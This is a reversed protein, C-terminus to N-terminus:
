RVARLDQARTQGTLLTVEVALRMLQDLTDRQYLDAEEYDQLAVLRYAGAPLPGLTYHGLHDTRTASIYRSLPRWLTRDTSFAVVLMDVATQGSAYRVTGSLTPALDTFTLVVDAIRAGPLVDIPEDTIDRGSQTVRSLMWPAPVGTARVLRRGADVGSVTFEGDRDMRDAPEGGFRSGDVLPVFLRMQTLDPAPTGHSELRISGSLTAGEVVTLVLDAVDVGSVSVAQAAFLPPADAQVAGLTRIIYEGPPVNDFVFRGDALWRPKSGSGPSLREPDRAQMIIAANLLPKDNAARVTGTVQVWRVTTSPFDVRELHGAKTLRVRQADSPDARGPYFTPAFRGADDGPAGAPASASVYYDGHLLGAIRYRGDADTRASAYDRLLLQGDALHPRQATVTAGAHPSGDANTLRGSLTSEATLAIDVGTAHGNAAVTIASQVDRSRRLGFASSVFGPATAWVTYKGPALSLTYQGAANTRATSRTQASGLQVDVQVNALPAGTDSNIIRGSLRGTAPAPSSLQILLFLLGAIKLSPGGRLRV